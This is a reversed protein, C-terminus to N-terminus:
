LGFETWLPFHDSVRYSLALRTMKQDTYVFPTFDVHGAHRFRAHIQQEGKANAFWAIQDYFSCQDPKDPDSFLTRPVRNLVDPVTLGTSTFAQWLLDGQRDINFDGLVILNQSWDSTQEAWDRMWRAIAKLEPIRSSSADGYMVHLTVLIFTTTGARFSVAYPTRAFQRQLADAGVEQLWEQPVVLECALGSPKLRTTDYLFAMREDNGSAGQTVDTMLFAWDDGLWRVLDRLARLDGKVEQLAIVDFRRLIEGIALLARLDRKPSAKPGATWERTLSAFARLNWTAILLNGGPQRAPVRQDLYVRLAAIDRAVAPPPTDTIDPMPAECANQM